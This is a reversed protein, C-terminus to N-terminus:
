RVLSVGAENVRESGGHSVRRLAVQMQAIARTHDRPMFWTTPLSCKHGGRM